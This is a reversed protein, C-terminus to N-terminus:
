TSFFRQLNNLFDINDDVSFNKSALQFYSTHNDFYAGFILMDTKSANLIKNSFDGFNELKRKNHFYNM